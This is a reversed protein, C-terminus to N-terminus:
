LAIPKATEPLAQFEAIMEEITQDLLHKTMQTTKKLNIAMKELKEEM